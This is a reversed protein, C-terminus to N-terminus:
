KKKLTELYSVMDALEQATMTAVLDLMLSKPMKTRSTVESAPVKTVIGGMLKLTLEQETQSVVMGVYENGNKTKVQWGEYGFSIGASPDIVSTFLAERSLKTGIESLDPGFDIGAGGAKHCIVCARAYVAQGRTADAKMALLEKLPPLPKNGAAAPPQIHKKIRDAIGDAGVNSLERYATIHLDAPLKGAEIVKMLERAGPNTRALGTVAASRVNVPRQTQSLVGLLLGTARNDRANGLAIVAREAAQDDKGGLLEEFGKSKSRELLLKAASAGATEAPKDLALKLLQADHSSLNFDRIMEVYQETGEVGKLANEIAAAVRASDKAQGKLHKLALATVVGQDPGSYALLGELAALKQAGAPQFDFARFYRAKDAANISGDKIIGALLEATGTARSRWIVDRRGAAGGASDAGKLYAALCEDWRGEAGIGLAELYWRDTGDHWAALKAWMQPMADSKDGALAIACERRCEPTKDELLAKIAMMRLGTPRAIRLGTIRLDPNDSKLASTVYEESKGPLRCLLHLARARLHAAASEDEWLARLQPEAKAGMADLAQWGLYRTALNPNKLAEMAGAATSLELPKITMKNGPPAIRFIRGRGLDGMAHGGVGPDYWDAVYLSGDPAVCVDSPRFWRDKTGEVLNVIQAEYGAGSKKVPYSRVVSPGPDCHIMQNWFIKPLLTGEYVVIGTPSGAGTLLLNPVVGPDNLHWHRSPIDKEMNTRPSSWGAGTVEDTYGFNGREMVYNIRVSKNGDDDNDSQWLTGFSDVTVEYNNRFNHGLVEFGSGDPNCRFVMGQRYPRGRDNVVNGAADVIPKGNRDHVAKGTNGVNWYYKGDPGFIFAHTSHDHQPDGVKTFLMEKKDPKDDGDEDTFVIVNPACSVIVKKGLVCIGLASDVDKGQYFVTTKDAKGDGDTDELILIRDGEPRKGNHGRYNVVECVWVRGRSDVDINSPSLLMPESAFLTTQLEPHTQLGAVANAPDRVESVGGAGQRAAGVAAAPKQTYVMFRVSSVSGPQDVGGNDLAGIAKFKEYGPPLDYVIVSNSHTGIGYSVPKGGVRLEGGGANRGVHVNGWDSSAAKWKLETLKLVGKPGELRPEVWDAWDHSFSDGGDEVVLYLEKAGTINAEITVPADAKKLLGGTFAAKAGETKPAPAEVKKKRQGKEDLNAEMDAPTVKSSVGEAPVEAKATWVIANLVIKRFNDDAWNRHFHAGTFGFGRGGDEREAAWAMHQIEGNAVSKRVDPNGSHAGDPRNLTEKPPHASLIPTVGKMGERFRMHYYWEDQVAFPKVGRTIAHNPLEKFDAKWHPNVSWNAEFYGGIWKLFADGSKGKPVEVGYHLCVLGTGRKIVPEFSEVKRNIYHGGGGDCYFVVTDANDFATIDKPWGNQRYVAAQVPLGSENLLKALLMCGAGHEHDGPGHSPGGAVLVVKKKEVLPLRKMRVDKFQVKMPPGAHLQLALLGAVAAKSKQGDIVEITTMGNIKQILHNGRAIITYDNWDEKKISAQIKKSDGVIEPKSKKGAADIVVKQGREALIGRGREEYLIGSYTEGAEFDAQYGGIVWNGFDKSRYQIGSNGGIMKFKLRIEFDDVEGARWILFTNGKTPNEKTTQGTVLGDEVKWFKPDGDWGTLDEGNFLPKFGEEDKAAGDQAGAYGAMWGAAALMLMVTIWLRVHKM